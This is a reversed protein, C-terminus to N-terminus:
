EYNRLTVGVPFRPVGDDTLEQYRVTLDGGIYKDKNEFWERREEDTGQPRVNFQEGSELECVFIATGKARGEGELVDVVKYESDIFSKHKQLDNSRKNLAYEGSHNRLIIGEHGEQVYKDHIAQVEDESNVDENEVVVIDKVGSSLILNHLLAYRVDFSANPSDKLICDYVRIKIKKMDEVDQEKLTEKKVLGVLRQFTMEDSFLEGDLIINKDKIVEKVQEKLHEMHPFLKGKRSMITKGDSLSRVGDYKPQAICPYAIHKKRGKQKGTKDDIKHFTHALMPLYVVNDVDKINDVYGKDLQKKWKSEAELQAQEEKSTENAKGLNKGKEIVKIDTQKKGDQQGHIVKIENDEVLIEWEQIKGTKAKKYLKKLKKM